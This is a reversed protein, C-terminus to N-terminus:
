IVGCKKTNPEFKLGLGGSVCCGGTIRVMTDGRLIGLDIFHNDSCCELTVTKVGMLSTPIDSCYCLMTGATVVRRCNSAAEPLTFFLLLSFAVIKKLILGWENM